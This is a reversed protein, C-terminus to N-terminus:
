MAPPRRAPLVLARCMILRQPLVGRRRCGARDWISPLEWWCFALQWGSPFAWAVRCLSAHVAAVRVRPPDLSPCARPSFEEITGIFEVDADVSPTRAEMHWVQTVLQRQRTNLVPFDLISFNRFLWLLRAKALGSVRIDRLEGAVSAIRITDYVVISGRM